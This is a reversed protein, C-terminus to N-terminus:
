TRYGIFNFPLCNRTNSYLIYIYIHTHLTLSFLVNNFKLEVHQNKYVVVSMLTVIGKYDVKLLVFQWLVYNHAITIQTLLLQNSLDGNECSNNYM